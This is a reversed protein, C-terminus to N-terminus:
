ESKDITTQVKAYSNPDTQDKSLFKQVVPSPSHWKVYGIKKFYEVLTAEVRHSYCYEQRIRNMLREEVCDYALVDEPGYLFKNAALSIENRLQPLMALGIVCNLNRKKVGPPCPKGTAWRVFRNVQPLTEALSKPGPFM